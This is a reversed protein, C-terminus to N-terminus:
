TYKVKVICYCCQRNIFPCVKAEHIGCHFCSFEKEKNVKFVNVHGNEMQIENQIAVAQQIASELFLVIDLAKQLTLSTGESPLQQQMREHNVSCVLRYCLMEELSDGYECYQSLRSLEAM